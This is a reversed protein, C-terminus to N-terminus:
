APEVESTHLQMTGKIDDYDTERSVLRNASQGNARDTRVEAKEAKGQVTGAHLRLKVRRPQKHCFNLRGELWGQRELACYRFEAHCRLSYGTARPVFLLLQRCADLLACHPLPSLCHLLNVLLPSTASQDCCPPPLYGLRHSMSCCSFSHRLVTHISHKDNRM